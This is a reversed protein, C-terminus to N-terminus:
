LKTMFHRRYSNSTFAEVAKTRSEAFYCVLVGSSHYDNQKVHEPTCLQWNSPMFNPYTIHLVQAINESVHPVDPSPPFNLPDYFEITATEKPFFFNVTGLSEKHALAHVQIM